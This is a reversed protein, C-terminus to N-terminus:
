ERRRRSRRGSGARRRDESRLAESLIESYNGKRAFLRLVGRFAGDSSVLKFGGFLSLALIIVQIIDEFGGNGQVLKIVAQILQGLTNSIPLDPEPPKPNPLPTLDDDDDDSDTSDDTVPVPSRGDLPPAGCESFPFTSVTKPTPVASSAAETSGVMLICALCLALFRSMM